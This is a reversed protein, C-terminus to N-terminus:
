SRIQDPAVIRLAPNLRYGKGQVSEIVADQSLSSGYLEQNEKSLKERIRWIAKRTAEENPSSTRDALEAAKVTRFNKPALHEATDQSFMEVLVCIIRYHTLSRLPALGYVLICKQQEDVALLIQNGTTDLTDGRGEEPLLWDDRPFPRLSAEDLETCPAAIAM